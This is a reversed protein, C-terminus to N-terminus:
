ALTAWLHHVAYARYPRWAEARTTLERAADPLGLARAAHRVGLDTAPFADRDGLARMAVYDATWPGIGPLALLAARTAQPDRERGLVLEGSALASGLGTLTRARSRPMALEAHDVRALADAAPFTRTLGGGPDEVPVGHRWALRGGLTRAAVVSIQQGLVARAALEGADVAGPARRGPRARVLPALARDRSLVAAVTEPEADADVLDRIAAIAAPRDRATGGALSLVARGDGLGVEAIMPGGPLDLVRRYTAEVIEEVGPIARLALFGLLAAGDFPPRPGLDIV